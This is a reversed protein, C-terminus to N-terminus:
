HNLALKWAEGFYWPKSDAVYHQLVGTGQFAEERTPFTIYDERPMVTPTAKAAIMAVLAQELYYSTGERKVLEQCWHELQEWDLSESRLGCIGVNMLPPIPAGALSEMLRRSYGYSEVCDTM